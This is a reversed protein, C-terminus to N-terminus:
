KQSVFSFRIGYWLLIGIALFAGIGMLEIWRSRLRVPSMDGIAIYSAWHYPHAVEKQDLFTLKAAQLAKDKKCGKRLQRYYEKMFKDNSREDIEWLTNVISKAGAYIFGRALSILGEGKQLKGTGTECASLVVMGAELSLNYLEAIFLRYSDTSDKMPTFALYTENINKNNTIAHSALHLIEYQEAMNLFNDKTAENGTLMDGGAVRSVTKAQEVNFKLPKLTSQLGKIASFSPAVALAKKSPSNNREIMRLLSTASYSYSIEFDKLLYKHDKYARPNEPLTKLLVDFPINGLEGDPVIILRSVKKSDLNLPQVLRQYLQYAANAYLQDYTKHEDLKVAKTMPVNIGNRLQKIMKILDGEIGKELVEMRFEKKEILLAFINRDGVFFEVFAQNSTLKDQMDEISPIFTRYKLEYYDDYTKELLQILDHRDQQLKFLKEKWLSLRNTDPKLKGQERGILRHYFTLNIKIDKEKSLLSDPINAYSKAALERLQIRLLFDRYHQLLAFGKELANRDGLKFLMNTVELAEEFNKSFKESAFTKSFQSQYGTKIDNGVRFLKEYNDLSKYLFATDQSGEYMQKYGRALGTYSDRLSHSTYNFEFERDNDPNNRYQTGTLSALASRHLDISKEYDGLKHYLYGMYNLLSKVRSASETFNARMITLAKEMYELATRYNGAEAHTQAISTYTSGIEPHDSRYRELEIKLGKEQNKLANKFDKQARYAVGINDYNFALYSYDPGFRKERIEAAKRYNEIALQNKNQLLYSQGINNYNFALVPHDEGFTKKRIQLSKELYILAQESDKQDNYMAGMNNYILAIIQHKDGYQEIAIALADSLYRHSREYDNKTSYLWNLNNYPLALFGHKDLGRELLKDISKLYFKESNEFDYIEGYAYGINAYINALLLFNNSNAHPELIELAKKSCRLAERNEGKSLNANCLNNYSSALSPHDTGWITKGLNLAKDAMEYQKESNGMADFYLSEVNWIKVFLSDQEPLQQEAIAIAEDLYQKASDYVSTELFYTTMLNISEVYNRYNKARLNKSAATRSLVISSDLQGHNFYWEAQILETTLPNLEDKPKDQQSTGDQDLNRCSVLLTLTLLLYRTKTSSTM